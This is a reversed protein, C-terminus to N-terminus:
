VYHTTEKKNPNIEVQNYQHTANSTSSQINLVENNEM